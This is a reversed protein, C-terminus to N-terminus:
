PSAALLLVPTREVSGGPTSRTGEGGARLRKSRFSWAGRFGASGAAGIGGRDFLGPVLLSSRAAARMLTPSRGLM